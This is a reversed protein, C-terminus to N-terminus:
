DIPKLPEIPAFGKSKKFSMTHNFNAMSDSPDLNTLNLRAFTSRVFQVSLIPTMEQHGTKPNLMESLCTVFIDDLPVIHFLDGAIKLAVSGVYDQYLENFQGVPMKTESLKGSALQKRRFNPIIEDTHVVPKAHLFGDDIAFSVSSGILSQDSLSQMEEIVERIAGAEGDILRRAVSTDNDWEDLGTRYATLANEFEAQDRIPADAVNAELNIRRKATGGRFVDFFGPKFAELATNAALQHTSELRPEAPKPQAAIARWDIADTLNTHVSVLEDIYTEWDDVADASDAAVQEKYAAKQRRQADREAARVAASLSRVAGKWGM